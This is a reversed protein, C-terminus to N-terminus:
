LTFQLSDTDLSVFKAQVGKKPADVTRLVKATGKVHVQGDTFKLQLTFLDDKALREDTPVFLKAAIRAALERRFQAEDACRVKLRVLKVPAETAVFAYDLGM